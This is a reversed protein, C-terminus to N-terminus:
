SIFCCSQYYPHTKCNDFTPISKRKLSSSPIWYFSQIKFSTSFCGHWKGLPNMCPYGCFWFGPQVHIFVQFLLMIHKKKPVIFQSYNVAKLTEFSSETQKAAAAADLWAASSTGHRVAWHGERFCLLARLDLKGWNALKWSQQWTANQVLCVKNERQPSVCVRWAQKKLM